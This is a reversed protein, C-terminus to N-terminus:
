DWPLTMSDSFLAHFVSTKDRPTNQLVIDVKEELINKPLVRYGKSELESLFESLKKIKSLSAKDELRVGRKGESLICIYDGVLSTIIIYQCEITNVIYRLSVDNNLDFEETFQLEQKALESTFLYNVEQIKRENVFFYEPDELNVYADRLSSLIGQLTKM